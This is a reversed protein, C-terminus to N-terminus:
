LGYALSSLLLYWDDVLLLHFSSMWKKLPQEYYMECCCFFELELYLDNIMIEFSCTVPIDKVYKVGIIKKEQSWLFNYQRM